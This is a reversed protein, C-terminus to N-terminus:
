LKSALIHRVRVFSPLHKALISPTLKSLIEFSKRGKQYPAACNRTAQALADQIEHRQRSELNQLPPLASDQLQDGFHEKLATRDAVIWTEMSTVMFLVQDETSGAPQAWKDQQQLHRWTAGLDAVPVESDIWMGVFKVRMTSNATKFDKFASNRSGCAVLRPMKGQYGCNELLKRFGERCRTHLEKSDGGGELYLISNVLSDRWNTGQDM